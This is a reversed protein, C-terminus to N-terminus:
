GEREQLEVNGQVFVGTPESVAFRFCYCALPDCYAADLWTLTEGEPIDILHFGDAVTEEGTAPDITVVSIVHRASDVIVTSDAPISKLNISALLDGCGGSSDYTGHMELICPGVADTATLAFISGISGRVPPAASFCFQQGVDGDQQATFSVRAYPRKYLFPNGATLTFEVIVLDRCGILADPAGGPAYPEVEHPGDTLAVEYSTWEGLTDDSGDSPPCVLRVTLTGVDCSVCASSQLAHTMWRLGYEAGADDSSVMAARFKWTRPIRQQRSFIGGQLGALRTSVNRKITSDYGEIKLLILGLFTESGPEDPDYWPAADVAPSVFPLPPSATSESAYEGFYLGGFYQGAFQEEGGLRYLVSCLDGGGLEWHGQLTNGLGNRLYSVTRAANAIEIGSVNLFPLPGTGSM